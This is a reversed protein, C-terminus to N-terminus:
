KIIHVLLFDFQLLLVLDDVDVLILARRELRLLPQFSASLQRHLLHLHQLLGEVQEVHVAAVADVLVLELVGHQYPKTLLRQAELGGLLVHGLDHGLDVLVAAAGDVEVLEQVHHAGLHYQKSALQLLLVHLVLQGADEVDEVVVAAAGDVEVLELLHGLLDALLDAVLGEM